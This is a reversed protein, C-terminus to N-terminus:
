LCQFREGKGIKCGLLFDKVAMRKKGELQVEKLILKGEGANVWIADKTVRSVTGPEGDPAEPDAQAARIKLIKGGYGTFAGPWSYLGRVQRDLCSAPRSWDIKGMDKTLMKAYCSQAGDQKEPTLSGEELRLLAEAILRSGLGSLREYLSEDTESDGIPVAEKLLMDGTDVGADMQMITVGTETEGNLIAWEIPAAGRYKPLLSAHINLCGYRPLDLIEQSLIQGFAAVVYVDAEFGKLTEVAEKERIRSPTFVPIGHKQACAKVPTIQVKGGRGKPRDPQTVAATVTHGAALLAELPGVSFEPTGMYVIKM